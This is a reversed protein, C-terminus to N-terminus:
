GSDSTAQGYAPSTRTGFDSAQRCFLDILRDPPIMHLARFFPCDQGKCTAVIAQRLWEQTEPLAELVEAALCRFAPSTGQAPAASSSPECLLQGQLLLVSAKQLASDSGRHAKLCTALVVRPFMRFAKQLLNQCALLDDIPDDNDFDDLSPPKSGM